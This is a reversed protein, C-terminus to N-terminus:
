LAASNPAPKLEDVTYRQIVPQGSTPSRRVIWTQYADMVIRESIPVPANWRSAEWKVIVKVTAEQDSIGLLRVLKLTHVEDFFLNIVGRHRTGGQYWQAFDEFGRYIGEPFRMELDNEALLSRYEALPAHIDLKNYWEVALETIEGETLIDLRIEEQESFSDLRQQPNQTTIQSANM